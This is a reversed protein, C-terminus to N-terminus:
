EFMEDIYKGKGAFERRVYKVKQSSVLDAQRKEELYSDKEERCLYCRNIPELNGLAKESVIVYQSGLSSASLASKCQLNTINGSIFEDLIQFMRNDAIPARIIDADEVKKKLKKLRACDKYQELKKRFLAITLMWDEDVDFSLIKLKKVNLSFIYVSSNPYGGIFSASQAFTEGLYFGRGFDNDEKSFGLSLDGKIEGKAGHFLVKKESTEMDKFFSEKVANIRFGENYICHYFNELSTQTPINGNKWRHLTSRPVGLKEALVTDSFNLNYKANEVDKEIDYNIM